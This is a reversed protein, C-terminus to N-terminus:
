ALYDLDATGPPKTDTGPPDNVPGTGDSATEIVSRPDPDPIAPAGAEPGPLSSAPQDSDRNLM